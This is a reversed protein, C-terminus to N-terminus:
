PELARFRREQLSPYTHLQESLADGSGELRTQQIEAGKVAFSPDAADVDLETVFSSDLTGCLRFFVSKFSDTDECWVKRHNVLPLALATPM